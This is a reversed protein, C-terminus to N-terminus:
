TFTCCPSRLRAMLEIVRHLTAPPISAARCRDDARSAQDRRADVAHLAPLTVGDAAASAGDASMGAVASAAPAWRCCTARLSQLGGVGAATAGRLSVGQADVRLEYAEPSAQGDVVQGHFGCRWSRWIPRRDAFNPALWGTM